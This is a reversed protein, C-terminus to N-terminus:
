DFFRFLIGHLLSSVTFKNCGSNFVVVQQLNATCRLAALAWSVAANGLSQPVTALYPFLMEEAPLEKFLNLAEAGLHVIVPVGTKKRVFSVTNNTWDVDEGKLNAIGGQSAGLHWCLQYLNKREPNV